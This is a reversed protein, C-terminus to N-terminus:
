WNSHGMYKVKRQYDALEEYLISMEEELKLLDDWDDPIYEAEHRETLRSIEKSLEVIQDMILGVEEKYEGFPELYKSRMDDSM